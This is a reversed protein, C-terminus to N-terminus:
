SGVFKAVTSEVALQRDLINFGERIRRYLEDQNVPKSLYDDAGCQFATELVHRGTKATLMLIYTERRPDTKRFQRILEPGTLGPMMWDVIAFRPANDLALHALATKGDLVGVAEYGWNRCHHALTAQITKCDDVILIKKM